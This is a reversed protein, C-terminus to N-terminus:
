PLFGNYYINAFYSQPRVINAARVDQIIAPAEQITSSGPIGGVYWQGRNGLTGYDIVTGSFSSSSVAETGNIYFRLTTGDWTGGIHCWRGIPLAYAFPTQVSRLVGNTTIYLQCRGDNSSDLQFGFTLFPNSWANLFYQKNFLEAAFNTARRLFVWGSLSINPTILTNNAGGAGNHTNSIYNSPIYIAGFGNFVGDEVKLLGMARAVPGGYQTLNDATGSTGKNEFTVPGDNLPYVLVDNEDPPIRPM